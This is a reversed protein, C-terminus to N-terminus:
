SSSKSSRSRSSRKRSRSGSSGSSTSRSRTSRSSSSSSGGSLGSRAGDYAGRGAGVAVEGARTVVGGVASAGKKAADRAPPFAAVAGAALALGIEREFAM